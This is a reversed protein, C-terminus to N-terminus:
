GEIGSPILDSIKTAVHTAESGAPTDATRPCDRGREGQAKAEETVKPM